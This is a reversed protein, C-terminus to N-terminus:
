LLAVGLMYAIAAIGIMWVISRWPVLDLAYCFVFGIRTAVFVWAAVATGQTAADGLVVVLVAPTFYILGEFCNIRARHMRGVFGSELDAPDERSSLIYASGTRTSVIASTALGLAIQLAVLTGLATLEPTM